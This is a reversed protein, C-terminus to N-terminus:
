NRLGANQPPTPCGPCAATVEKALVKWLRTVTGRFGISLAGITGVVIALTIVYEFVAQGKQDRIPRFGKKM